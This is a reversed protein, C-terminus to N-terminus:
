CEQLKIPFWGCVAVKWVAFRYINRPNYWHNPDVNTPAYDYFPSIWRRLYEMANPEYLLIHVLAQHWSGPFVSWAAFIWAIYKTVEWYNFQCLMGSWPLTGPGNRERFPWWIINFLIFASLDSSKLAKQTPLVTLINVSLWILLNM